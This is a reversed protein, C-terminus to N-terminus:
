LRCNGPQKTAPSALKESWPAFRKPAEAKICPKSLHINQEEMCM